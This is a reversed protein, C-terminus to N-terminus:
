EGICFACSPVFCLGISKIYNLMCIYTCVCVLECAAGSRFSPPEVKAYDWFPPSFFDMLFPAFLKLVEHKESPPDLATLLFGSFFSYPSKRSAKKSDTIFVWVCVCVQEYIVWILCRSMTSMCTSSLALVGPSCGLM